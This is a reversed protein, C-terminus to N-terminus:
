LYKGFIRNNTKYVCFGRKCCWSKRRTAPRPRTLTTPLSASITFRSSKPLRLPTTPRSSLRSSAFVVSLHQREVRNRISPQYNFVGSSDAMPYNHSKNEPIEKKNKPVRRSVVSSLALYGTAQSGGQKEPLTASSRSILM